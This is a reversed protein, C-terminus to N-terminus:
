SVLHNATAFTVDVSIVPVFGDLLQSQYFFPLCNEKHKRIYFGIQCIIATLDYSVTFKLLAPLPGPLRVKKDEPDLM